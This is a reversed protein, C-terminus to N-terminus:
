PNRYKVAVEFQNGTAGIMGLFEPVMKEVLKGVAEAEKGARDYNPIIITLETDTTKGGRAKKEKAM